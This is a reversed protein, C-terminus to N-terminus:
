SPDIEVLLQDGVVQDGSGVAVTKVTGAVGAVIPQQMKMAELIMLRDGVEVTDGENAFVEVIQGPMPARADAGSGGGSATKARTAKELEYTRGRYSIHVKDGTRVVLATFAGEETKVILRDGLRTINANGGGQLEIENGNVLWKM